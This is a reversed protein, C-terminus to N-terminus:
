QVPLSKIQSAATIRIEGQDNPAVGTVALRKIKAIDSLGADSLIQKPVIVKHMKGNDVQLTLYDTNEDSFGFGNVKGTIANTCSFLIRDGSKWRTPDTCTLFQDVREAIRVLERYDGSTGERYRAARRMEEPAELLAKQLTERDVESIKPSVYVGATPIALSGNLLRLGGRLRQRVAKFREPLDKSPEETIWQVPLVGVDARGELVNIGSAVPTTNNPEVRLARGYSGYVPLYFFPSDPTGLAITYDSNRNLDDLTKIPSDNRTVLGIQFSETNSPQMRAAFLYNNQIAAASLLPNLTFAIDWEQNKLKSRVQDFSERGTAEIFEVKVDIDRGFRKALDGKLYEVFKQYGEKPNFTPQNPQPNGPAQSSNSLVPVYVGVTVRSLSTSNQVTTTNGGVAIASKPLLKPALFGIGAITSVAIVGMALRRKTINKGVVTVTNIKTKQSMPSRAEKLVGLALAWSEVAWRAIDPQLGLQEVLRSTLREVQVQPSISLQTSMLEEPVHENLATTLAKRELQYHALRDNLYGRWQQPNDAINSGLEKVLDRLIDRATSNM